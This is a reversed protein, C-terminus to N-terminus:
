ERPAKWCPACRRFWGGHRGIRPRIAALCDECGQDQNRYFCAIARILLKWNALPSRHSVEPLAIQQDTVPGSTVAGFAEHIAAAARRLGHEPPLAACGALAALDTVQNQIVQEIAARREASLGPDNLPKLLGDLDGGRASAASNLHDLREKASPFRERVLAILSQAEAVLNQDFLARIRALYADILLIESEVSGQKKHFEKATDLATKSKGDLILQRINIAVGSSQPSM